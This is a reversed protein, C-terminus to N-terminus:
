GDGLGLRDVAAKESAGGGSTAACGVRRRGVLVGQMTRSAVAPWAAADGGVRSSQTQSPL